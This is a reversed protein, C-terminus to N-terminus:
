KQLHRALVSRLKGADGMAIVVDAINGQYIPHLGDEPYKWAFQRGEIMLRVSQELMAALRRFCPQSNVLAERSVPGEWDHVIARFFAEAVDSPEGMGRFYELSSQPTINVANPYSSEGHTKNFVLTIRRADLQLPGGNFIATTM